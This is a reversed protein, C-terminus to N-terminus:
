ESLTEKAQFVKLTLTEEFAKKMEKEWDDVL